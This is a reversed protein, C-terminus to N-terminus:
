FISQPRTMVVLLIRNTEDRNTFEKELEVEGDRPSLVGSLM